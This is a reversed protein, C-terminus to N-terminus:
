PHEMLAGDEYLIRAKQRQIKGSSTKPLSGIAVIAVHHPRLGFEEMVKRTVVARLEAADHSAAEAAIVLEESENVVTSFAIVNGRRVGPLDGVVWEIDQPYHNGGRIIILDKRRGCIFVDGDAVYALDGTRLYGDLFADATAEPARFYGSTVSPGRTLVEGVAREGVDNGDEDVIRLDHGPFPRGCGVLEIAEEDAAAVEARGERMAKPRVRDVRLPTGRQHFTIALTSEAMGYSPLFARDSFGAPAFHEAFSRLTSARIPEAGCGAVRVCSLDLSAVESPKVRKAALQYAFNPAYTITGRQSSLTELWLRPSRAFLETPMLYIPIDCILPGLVFGILGMDHFLPLWSVGVDSDRRDLGNPGLFATTNAVLNAHTVMVGKPKSTSGSTFQLFCLDSPDISPATFSPVASADAFLEAVDFIRPVAIERDGLRDVVERNGAGCLMVTSESATVIHALTDIYGDANKFSARPYIPVPVYGGVVAGLFSLVFEHPEALVLAIRDGKQLGLAAIFAARRYAEAELARYSYYRETRDQGLFRFGRSEDSPLRGLAEVLHIPPAGDM